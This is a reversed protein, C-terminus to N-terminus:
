RQTIKDFSKWLFQKGLKAEIESQVLEIGKERYNVALPMGRIRFQTKEDLFMCHSVRKYCRFIDFITWFPGHLSVPRQHLFITVWTNWNYRVSKRYFELYTPKQKNFVYFFLCVNRVKTSFHDLYFLRFEVDEDNKSRFDRDMKKQKKPRAFVAWFLTRAFLPAFFPRWQIKASRSHNLFKPRWNQM